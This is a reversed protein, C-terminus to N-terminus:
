ESRLSNVPNALAARISQFSMTFVAIVVITLGALAYVWVGIETKYSYSTLWWDVVFWSVPIAILLAVLVLMGFEKSLLVVIGPVSAGLVKRIGIERTRQEATFATLAFLGICAILIALSAFVEFISGLRQEAVYMKGFEEDLFTYNFPQDPAIKKWTDELAEITVDAQNAAFKFSFANDSAAFVLAVPRINEKMSAFHFNELVGVVTYTRIEENTADAGVFSSIKRGVAEGDFNFLAVAAENLIIGDIDSPFEESFNRGSVVNMGFTPIYDEDIGWCQLNVMNEPSPEQGEKWTANTNRQADPIDLPLFGSMTGREISSIKLAETKFAKPNPRLAYGDKVIIVQSRDYGIRKSQIYALQQNVTITGVILLMSITFQFVVMGNRLLSRASSNANGKLISAPRFSSLFFAPYTGALIGIALASLLIVPFFFRENFPISLDKSALENFLPLALWAVLLALAFAFFSILISETLFLRVLHSRLSGMAKRIGVEKARAGSRATSLNMFNVCAIVLILLAITGFMYVYVVSGNPELEGILNSHLHIDRLATLTAEYKNGDKLFQEMTFETGLAQGLAKGMYKEVFGPLKAQLDSSKTGEKLLLYTNFDGTLFDQSLAAKALPWDGVLGILIDFHFHSTSPINEFVATIKGVKVNDLVITQGLAGGNPFHKEAVRRSIAVSKAETLAKDPNGEIVPVSFVKFFTSDTWAVNPERQNVTENGTRVLYSGMLHIRVTAEVEPYESQLANGVPAPGSALKVHNPGFKIEMSVRHIRDAKDNYTDYSLENQIYLVILLCAAVGIALGAANIAAYLRGKSIQRFATTLYNRFMVLKPKPHEFIEKQTQRLGATSGFAIIVEDYADKFKEGKTMKESVASCVHDIVEDQFGDLIIGRAHLDKIIFDIHEAGLAM